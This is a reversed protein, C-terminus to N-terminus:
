EVKPGKPRVCQYLASRGGYGGEKGVDLSEEAGTRYEPKRVKKWGKLGLEEIRYEM